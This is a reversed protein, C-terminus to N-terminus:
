RSTETGHPGQARWSCLLAVAEALRPGPRSMLGALRNEIGDDSRRILSIRPLAANALAVEPSVAMVGRDIGAFVNRLGAHALVDNIWHRGGLSLLPREWVVVFVKRPAADACTGAVAADFASAAAAAPGPAGALVGLDRIADGIAALSAPETVYVPIGHATLWALDTPHNGTQWAVVLDPALLLLRERDISGAMGVVVADPALGTVETGASVGVLRDGAGAAHVLEAAHPALAVIRRAPTDLAVTRGSDDVVRLDAGVGGALALLVIMVFRTM